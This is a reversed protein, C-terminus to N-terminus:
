TNLFLDTGEEGNQKKERRRERRREHAGYERRLEGWRAAGAAGRQGQGTAGGGGTAGGWTRVRGTAGGGAASGGAWWATRRGRLAAKGHGRRAVALGSAGGASAV